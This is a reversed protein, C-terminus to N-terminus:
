TTSSAIAVVLVWVFPTLALYMGMAGITFSRRKRRVMEAESPDSKQGIWRRMGLLWRGGFISVIVAFVGSAVVAATSWHSPDANRFYQYVAMALADILACGVIAVGALAIGGGFLPIVDDLNKPKPGPDQRAAAETM